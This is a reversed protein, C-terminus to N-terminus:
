DKLKIIQGPALRLDDNLALLEYPSLKFRILLDQITEDSRIFYQNSQPLLPVKISHQAKIILPRNGNLKILESPTTQFQNAISKITDNPQIVYTVVEFKEHKM